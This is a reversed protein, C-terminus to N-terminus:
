TRAQSTVLPTNKALGKPARLPQIKSDPINSDTGAAEYFYSSQVFSQPYFLLKTLITMHRRGKKQTM